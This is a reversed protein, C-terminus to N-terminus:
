NIRVVFTKDKMEFIQIHKWTVKSLFPYKKYFRDRDLGDSHTHFGEFSIFIFNHSIRVKAGCKTNKKCCHYIFPEKNSISKYRYSFIDDALNKYYHTRMQAKKILFQIKEATRNIFIIKKRNDLKDEEEEEEIKIREDIIKKMLKNDNDDDKENEKKNEAIDNINEEKVSNSTINNKSSLMYKLILSKYKNLDKSESM